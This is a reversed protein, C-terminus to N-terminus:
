ACMKLIAVIYSSNFSVKAYHGPRLPDYGSREVDNYKEVFRGWELWSIRRSIGTEKPTVIIENDSVNSKAIFEGGRPLKINKEKDTCTLIKRWTKDTEM